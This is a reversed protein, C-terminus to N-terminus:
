HAPAVQGEALALDLAGCSLPCSQHSWAERLCLTVILLKNQLSIMPFGGRSLFLSPLDKTSCLIQMVWVVLNPFCLLPLHGHTWRWRELVNNMSGRSRVNLGEISCHYRPVVTHPPMLMSYKLMLSLRRSALRSVDGSDLLLLMWMLKIRGILLQLDLPRAQLLSCHLRM